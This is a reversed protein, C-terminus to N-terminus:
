LISLVQNKANQWLTTPESGSDSNLYILVPGYVKKWHEGDRLFVGFSPGAYHNSFFIQFHDDNLM